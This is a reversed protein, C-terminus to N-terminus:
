RELGHAVQDTRRADAREVHGSRLVRAPAHYSIKRREAPAKGAGRRCTDGAIGPAASSGGRMAAHAKVDDVRVETWRIPVVCRFPLFLARFGGPPEPEGITDAGLTTMVGGGRARRNRQSRGSRRARRPGAQLDGEVGAGRVAEGSWGHTLSNGLPERGLQRCWRLASFGGFFRESM